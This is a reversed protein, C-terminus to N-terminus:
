ESREGQPLQGTSPDLGAKERFYRLNSEAETRDFLAMRMAISGPGRKLDDVRGLATLWRIEWHRAMRRHWWKM